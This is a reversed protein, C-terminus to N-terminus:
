KQQSTKVTSSAKICEVPPSFYDDTKGLQSGSSNCYYGAQCLMGGAAAITHIDYSGCVAKQNSKSFVKWTSVQVQCWKLPWSGPVLYTMPGLPSSVIVKGFSCLTLQTKTVQQEVWLSTCRGVRVLSAEKRGTSESIWLKDHHLTLSQISLGLYSM